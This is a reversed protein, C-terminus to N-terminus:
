FPFTNINPNHDKPFMNKIFEKSRETLDCGLSVLRIGVKKKIFFFFHKCVSKFAGRPSDTKFKRKPRVIIKLGRDWM